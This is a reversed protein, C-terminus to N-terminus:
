ARKTRAPKADQDRRGAQGAIRRCPPGREGTDDVQFSLHPLYRLNLNELLAQRLFGEAHYLAELVQKSKDRPLAHEVYVRANRLDQSVDVRTVNVMADDLRTDVLDTILIGLEEHLLEAIRQQRRTTM